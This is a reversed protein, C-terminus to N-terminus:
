SNQANKSFTDSDFGMNCKTENKDPRVGFDGVGLCGFMQVGSGGFGVRFVRFCWFCLGRFM